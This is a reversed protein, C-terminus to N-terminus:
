RAFGLNEVAITLDVKYSRLDRLSVRMYGLSESEWSIAALSRFVAGLNALQKIATMDLNMWSSRVISWYDLLETDSLDSNVRQRPVGRGSLEALDPAPIGQGAMEWDFVMLDIGNASSRVRLNQGGFDCHVLTQPFHQCLEQVLDWRSELFDCQRLIAALIRLDSTNLAPNGLNRQIVDRIQLLHAFYHTPGRGPLRFVAPIGAASVHMLGLWRAALSRHEVISYLFEGVGVDELFLWGYETEPEDVFGYFKLGAVPLYPLVEEYITRELHAYEKVYRKAIISKGKPGMGNLRYVSSVADGKKVEQVVVISKPEVRKPHLRSWAQVVPHQFWNTPNVELSSPDLV